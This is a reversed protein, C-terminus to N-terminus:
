GNEAKIERDGSQLIRIVNTAERVRDDQVEIRAQKQKVLWELHAKAEPREIAVVIFTNNFYDCFQGRSFNWNAAIKGESHGANFQDRVEYLNNIGGLRDLFNNLKLISPSRHTSKKTM